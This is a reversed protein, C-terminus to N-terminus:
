RLQWAPNMLSQFKIGGLMWAPSTDRGVSTTHTALPIGDMLWNARRSKRKSSKAGPEAMSTAM